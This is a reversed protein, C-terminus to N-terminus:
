INLLVAVFAGILAPGLAFVGFLLSTLAFKAVTWGWSQGYFRKMALLFYLWVAGLGLSTVAGGSVVQALGIAILSVAFIFSFANLAFVLHDVFYFDARQRWYLIALVLAYVPLLIFLIRTIWETLPGNIAAPDTALIELMHKPDRARGLLQLKRAQGSNRRELEFFKEVDQSAAPAAEHKPAFFM